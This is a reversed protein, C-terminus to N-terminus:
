FANHHNLHTSKQIIRFKYAVIDETVKKITKHLSKYMEATPEDNVIVSGNDDFYLRWLKKLFGSVGTNLNNKRRLDLTNFNVFGNNGNAVYINPSDGKSFLFQGSNSFYDDNGDPDFKNIANDHCYLYPSIDSNKEGLNDIRDWVVRAADYMRAGHDYWDLGYM